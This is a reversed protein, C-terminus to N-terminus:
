VEIQAWETRVGPVPDLPAHQRLLADLELASSDHRARVIAVQERWQAQDLGSQALTPPLDGPGPALRQGLEAVLAALDEPMTPESM